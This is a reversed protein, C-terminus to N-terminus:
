SVSPLTRPADAPLREHNFGMVIVRVPGAIALLKQRASHLESYLSVDCEDPLAAFARAALALNFALSSDGLWAVREPGETWELVKGTGKCEDCEGDDLDRDCFECECVHKYRGVGECEGCRVEKSVPWVVPGVWERVAAVPWTGVPANIPELWRAIEPKPHVQIDSRDSCEAVMVKGDTAFVFVGARRLGRLREPILDEPMM